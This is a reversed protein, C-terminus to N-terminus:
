RPPPRSLRHSRRLSLPAAQLDPFADPIPFTFSEDSLVYDAYGGNVNYGNFLRVRLPERTYVVNPLLRLPRLDPADM